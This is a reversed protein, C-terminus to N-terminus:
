LQYQEVAERLERALENLSQASTETQRTSALSQATAQNINQMAVAIQAVGTSQQQGGTVMQVASQASEDIVQALREITEGMQNVLQVGSDVERKGEETAMATSATARQIDLLISRVQATAQRSREALDRVEEAVVAFGKGQEGARAAEVAANLALMNSQSAIANVSETISGIQQTQESLGLINEEILDVRTKIQDMSGITRRVQERGAQSIKVTREAVDAVGQSRAVLQEAITRIEDVTTTTQSIAASQENAGAAQQTAAALIETAASGLEGAADSVQHLMRQLSSVTENLRHGLAILPDNAKQAHGNLPLRASLNGQGVQAMYDGYTQVAEELHQRQRQEVAFREELVRQTRELEGAQDKSKTLAKELGSRFLWVFAAVAFFGAGTMVGEYIGVRLADPVYMERILPACVYLVTGLAAFGISWVTDLLLSSGVIILPFLDWLPDAPTEGPDAMHGVLITTVGGWLLVHSAINVRGRRSLWYVLSFWIVGFVLLGANLLITGKSRLINRLLMIGNTTSILMLGSLAIVNVAHARRNLDENEFSPEILHRITDLM